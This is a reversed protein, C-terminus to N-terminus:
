RGAQKWRLEGLIPFLNDFIHTDEGDTYGGKYVGEEKRFLRMRDYVDSAFKWEGQEISLLILLGYLAPSEYTVIPERTKRDYRGFLRHGQRYFEGQMFSTLAEARIQIKERHLAIFGQDLLNIEEMYTYTKSIPNYIGPFFVGDDPLDALIEMMNEYVNRHLIKKSVMQGLPEPDIYSLTIYAPTTRYQCDFFDVLIGQKVQHTSLFRGIYSGAEEWEKEQWLENAQYLASIIRIDDILANTDVVKEGKSGIKWYVLGEEQLFYTDLLRYSHVFLDRDQKAVAYEMWLGLSESLAERGHVIDPNYKKEAEVDQMYTALTGNENTLYVRIFQETDRYSVQREISKRYWYRVGIGMLMFLLLTKGMKKRRCGM